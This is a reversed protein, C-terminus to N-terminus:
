LLSPRTLSHGLPWFEGQKAKKDERWVQFINNIILLAANVSFTVLIQRLVLNCALYSKSNNGRSAQERHADPSWIAKVSLGFYWRYPGVGLSRSPAASSVLSMSRVATGMACSRVGGNYTSLLSPTVDCHCAIIASFTFTLRWFALHWHHFDYFLQMEDMKMWQEGKIFTIEIFLLQSRLKLSM